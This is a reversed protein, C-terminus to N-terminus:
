RTLYKRVKLFGSSEDNYACLDPISGWESGSLDLLWELIRIKKYGM